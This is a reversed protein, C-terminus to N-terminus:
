LVSNIFKAKLWEPSHQNQVYGFGACSYRNWLEPNEFLGVVSNAMDYPNNKIILESGDQLKLGEVGVLNTVVPFGMGMAEVIKTKIGTGYLVPILACFCDAVVTHMDEVFGWFVVSCESAYSDIIEKPASGLVYLKFDPIKEKILPIVESVVYYLSDRNASTYLNGFFFANPQSSKEVVLRDVDCSPLNSYINERGTTNILFGAEKPSTLFVADFDFPASKEKSLISNAEFKLVYSAFYRVVLSFIAPIRNKFTGFINDVENFEAYRFYRNSLLDDLDVIKKEVRFVDSYAAVRLMDFYVCKPSIDRNIQDIKARITPSFYLSEQLSGQRRFLVNVLVEIASPLEMPFVNICGIKKYADLDLKENKSHFVILTLNFYEALWRVGQNIMRERGGTVPLFPRSAVYILNERIVNM